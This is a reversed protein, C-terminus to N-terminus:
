GGSITRSWAHVAPLPRWASAVRERVDFGLHARPAAETGPLCRGQDVACVDGGACDDDNRCEEPEPTDALTSCATTALSALGLAAMARVLRVGTIM